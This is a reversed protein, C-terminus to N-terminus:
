LIHMVCDLAGVRNYIAHLNEYSTVRASQTYSIYKGTRSPRPAGKVSMAGDHEIANIAERVQDIADDIGSKIIVRFDVVAPYKILKRMQEPTGELINM